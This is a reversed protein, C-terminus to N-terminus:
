PLREVIVYNSLGLVNNPAALISNILMKAKDNNPGQYIVKGDMNYDAAKYGQVIFNALVTDNGDALVVNQFLTLVDNWPGQYIVHGDGNLDGPWLTMKDNLESMADDEYVETNPDTFDITTVEPSLLHTNGTVIGLHNRHRVAVYYSGSPVHRFKVYSIGDIDRIDGDRQLLGARTAIVSDQKEAARLEVMVWDVPADNGTIYFNGLDCYERYLTNGNSGTTGTQGTTDNAVGGGTYIIYDDFDDEGIHVLHPLGSYPEFEPIKGYYRLDDRMTVTSDQDIMAGKLRIKLDLVVGRCALNLIPDCPNRPDSETPDVDGDFNLDEEGDQFADGDTNPNLPDTEDPTFHGDANADEIGDKIQDYDSDPNYLDTEGDDQLNNHNVDEIDDPLLDNDSDSDVFNLLGDGDEDVDPNGNTEAFAGDPQASLYSSEDADGSDEARGDPTTGDSETMINASAEAIDDFGNNNTDVFNDWIGDNDGDKDSQGSELIDIINDGDSDLDTHNPSGDYDVDGIIYESGDGDTDEPRGDEESGDADTIVLPYAAYVDSFGDDNLDVFNGNLELLGDGNTDIGGIEILDGTGDNDSDGDLFDAVGDGDFDTRDTTLGGSYNEGDYIILPDDPDEIGPLGDDDPDYVDFFGDQDNDKMTLPDGLVPFDSEGDGNIDVGGVEILDPIGDNDSDRDLFNPKGDGDRDNILSTADFVVSAAVSPDTDDGDFGYAFGDNDNDWNAEGVIDVVGDGNSDINWTEILDPIGDNDSDLDKDNPIGDHDDDNTTEVIDPIGDGDDDLDFYDVIGDGDTDWEPSVYIIQTKVTENGCNDIATWTRTIHGKCGSLNTLDDSYEITVEVTCNDLEDVVRGTLNLDDKNDSCVITLDDPVTFTPAITDNLTYTEELQTINGCDDVTYWSRTFTTDTLCDFNFADEAMILQITHDCNDLAIIESGIKLPEPINDCDVVKDLPLSGEIVMYSLNETAHVGDQYDWEQLLVNCGTSSVSLIRTNVPENENATVASIIVVPNHYKNAFTISSSANTLDISGMEGIVEGQDNTINGSGEIAMYGVTELNHAVESDSSTEENVWADVGNSTLNYIRVTAPDSENNTQISAFLNPPNAYSQDFAQNSPTSNMLWSSIEYPNAGNYAGEEFAIWAVNEVAHMGDNNEEEYLKLQFQTTSVNRLKAVVPTIENQSTVQTFIVPPKNFQIPLGITKWYNSVNEMVGAVMRKGNPLTYIRYIDPATQDQITITQQSIASNSCYDVGNWIRNIIYNNLSCSDTGQTTFEDTGISVTQCDEMIDVADALPIQDDCSIVIDNPVNLISPPNVDTLDILVTATDCCGTADNCVIYQFEDTGCYTSSPDYIFEGDVEFDLTGNTPFVSLTYEPNVLNFDNDSVNDAHPFGPCVTYYVDDGLNPKQVLRAIVSNSVVWDSCPARRAKRRFETTASIIGPDYSAANAGVVDQWATYGGIGDDERYEWQYELTGGTGGSPNSGAFINSPDYTSCLTEGGLITGGEDYNDVIAITTDRVGICNNEEMTVAISAFGGETFYVSHPGAGAITNPIAGNGFTWTFVPNSNIPIAEIVITQGTCEEISSINLVSQPPPDSLAVAGGSEVCDGGLYRVRIDYVGAGQGSFQGISSWTLGGNVSYEISTGSPRTAYIEIIGDSQQCQSPDTTVVSDIVIEPRFLLPRNDTSVCGDKETTLTVIGNTLADTNPVDFTIHHPGQGLASLPAAYAGFDWTYDVYPGADEANFEFAELECLFGSASTPYTIINAVPFPKVTKEVVNSNIWTGCPVRRARRRYWTTQSIVGPDFTASTAGPIDTWSAQNNISYQWQLVEYGDTGGSPLSTSTIATPDYTGCFGEDGDIIGASVYNVSVIKTVVNSYLWVGCPTKRTARRYQTTQSINGPDFYEDHANLIAVWNVSDVSQEWQYYPASTGTGGSPAVVNLIIDPDYIGCNDEDGVILGADTYNTVVTKIVANSYVYGACRARRVGRRYRVTQAISPPDYTVGNVGVIVAWSQGGDTSEEWIYELSGGGGSASVTELIETPDYGDCGTESGVITGPETLNKCVSVMYDEVEGEETIGNYSTLPSFPASKFLRFRFYFDQGGSLDTGAPIDFNYNIIGTTVAENIIMEGTDDFDGDMNFDAYALLHGSGTIEATLSGGDIGETWTGADSFVIGDEDDIGNADDGEADSQLVPSPEADITSGLYLTPSAPIIHAPGSSAGDARTLYPLPLDGLDFTDSFTFGYHMDVVDGSVFVYQVANNDGDQIDYAPTDGLSTTLTTLVLPAVNKYVSIVMNATPLQDFYFSGDVAVTTHGYSNGSLDMIFLDTGEPFTEGGTNCVGDEDSDLCVIGSISNSYTLVLGFSIEMSCDEGTQCWSNGTETVDGGSVVFETTNDNTGDIDYTPVFDTPPVIQIEWTGDPLYNFTYNGDIDTYTTETYDGPDYTIGDLTVSTINQVTIEVENLGDEDYDLVGDEDNDHWVVDGVSGPPQYGFIPGTVQSSLSVYVDKLKSDCNENLLDYNEDSVDLPSYCPIGDTSPDATLEVGFPLSSEDVAIIYSKPLLGSFIYFGIPELGTGNSTQVTDIANTANCDGDSADCIYVTVDPIGTEKWDQTGNGNNDYYIYSVVIGPNSFGFSPLEDDCEGICSVGDVSAIEGGSIEILYSKPTTPQAQTGTYDLPIDSDNPNVLVNYTGDPLEDFEFGGNTDTTETEIWVFVGDNNLDAEIRVEINELGVDDSNEFGNGNKDFYVNGTGIGESTLDYGFDINSVDTSGDVAVIVKADCTSCIGSEDADETQKPFIPLTNEILSIIFDGQPLNNFEYNGNIDTTTEQVLPDNDDIEGDSDMNRYLKLTVDKIGEDTSNIHANGHWDYYVNGGFDSNGRPQLGFDVSYEQEGDILNVQVSNDAIGDVESTVVWNNIGPISGTDVKIFYDTGPDVDNFVYIGDNNSTTVPCDVGEICSSSVLMVPVNEIASEGADQTGSGDIDEWINGSISEEMEYGFNINEHDNGIGIIGVDKLKDNPKKWYSDGQGGVVGNTLDPDATQDNMNNLSSEEVELYYYGNDIGTILYEGNEDTTDSEVLVWTGGNSGHTCTRNADFAPYINQGLSNVCVYLNIIANPIYYDTGEEYGYIDSWGDVDTDGYILGSISGKNLLTVEDSVTNITIIVGDGNQAESVSANTTIQDGNVKDEPQLAMFEFDITQTENPYLPGIDNLEIVGGSVNDPEISSSVFELKSDDYEYTFPLEDITAYPNGPEGTEDPCCVTTVRVGVADIYIKVGDDSQVTKGDISISWESDFVDWTWDQYETIDLTIIGTGDLGVYDNLSPTSQDSLGPDPVIVTSGNEKTFTVELYDNNIPSDIFLSILLEVKEIEETEGSFDFGKVSATQTWNTSSAMNEDPENLMNTPSNPFDTSAEISSAYATVVSSNDDDEAYSINTLEVHYGVEDSEYVVTDSIITNTIELLPAFAASLDPVITAISDVFFELTTTNTWGAPLPANEFDVVVFYNAEVLDTFEFIGGVDTTDKQILIDSHDLEGDGDIDYYVQVPINELGSESGNQIGDGLTGIGSGDDAFIVDTLIYTGDLITKSDDSEFSVSNGTSVSAESILVPDSFTPLIVVDYNVTFSEESDLSEDLWWQISTVETVLLPETSQWTNGDDTSYLIEIDSGAPPNNNDEASNSVFVTGEPIEQEVVISAGYEPLGIPQPNNNQVSVEIEIQEGPNASPPAIVEVTVAPPDSSLTGGPVGYDGNHKENNRGSAVEQYPSLQANCPGDLIAFEYFVMGVAGTNEGPIGEFHMQDEFEFSMTQHGQLKVVILGWVKVLRFCNADYMSPNGVPQLLFNFDPSYDGDNDFGKEIKGLDFWIGELVVSAGPHTVNTTQRWGLEKDPFAALFEDPVKSTTNPWIKNAQASIEARLQVTKSDSAEIFAGNDNATAWVDYSLQLDDTQDPKSGTVRNGNNDLLPYSVLWYQTMCEGAALKGIYRTADKVGGEHTFSFTGSYPMGTPITTPYIGPTVNLYDGIYAFVDEMENDGDNCIKIGLYVAQPSAGAPTQINHDVVLNYYKFMEIRLDGSPNQGFLISTSILFTLITLLGKNM